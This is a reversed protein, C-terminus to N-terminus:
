RALEDSPEGDRLVVIAKVVQGREADPAPVAAAEAVAPHSAVGGRGRVPRDPVRLLPDPRGRPERVLPLRREDERVLDGTPWWSARSAARAAARIRPLPRLVDPLEGRPGPARGAAARRRRGPGRIGPLPRGMSGDRSRSGSRTAASTAPRADPRLRRLDRPRGGRAVGRDSGPTSRRGRPSRGDCGRRDPAAPGAQRADPVRDAGPLARRRGRARGTALREAPDFRGEVLLAAAGCLWPALFVNRASKSWGTATTCWVLEGEAAGLWHRAQASRARAPLAPRLPRRAARRDDGLHLRDLAGDEPGLDAPEVPPRRPVTRTSCRPSEEM